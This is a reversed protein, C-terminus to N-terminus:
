LDSGWPLTLTLLEGLARALQDAAHRTHRALRVLEGALVPATILTKVIHLPSLRGRAFLALLRPSLPTHVDDSIVRLCGFPVGRRSCLRALVASEMDAAIADHASGLAQKRAPEGVLEPVTVVRGRRLPPQWDGPPLEIPWSVPWRNGSLDSVETALIVDGVAYGPQLAGAFGASLVIKPRYRLNELLPEGLLWEAAREACAAGIGTEVVLVTLWPPGCFRARCPAGPFSQQPRFEKHFAQAERGLAFVICPDDITLDNV